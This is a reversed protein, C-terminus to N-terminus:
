STIEASLMGEFQTLVFDKALCSEAYARAVRNKGADAGNRSLAHALAERFLAPKEPPVLVAIGPNEAVLRGLDSDEDATIVATGGAALIATLKSPMFADVAGNRQVVLHVDAMALLAPFDEPPQPPRFVVNRLGASAAKGSLGERASGDGVLLFVVDPWDKQMAVATELIMELGQKRGMSGAYLVIRCGPELKWERRFDRGRVGPRVRKTDVWNPFLSARDAPVKFTALRAVMQGSVASVRDFRRL